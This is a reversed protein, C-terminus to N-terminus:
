STLSVPPSNRGLLVCAGGLVFLVLVAPLLFLNLLVPDWLAPHVHRTIAPELIPFHKPFLWLAAAGLPTADLASISISRAGDIVGLAMAMALFVYGVWRILTRFMLNIRAKSPYLYVSQRVEPLAQFACHSLNVKPPREVM